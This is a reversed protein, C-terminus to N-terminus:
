RQGTAELPLNFNVTTTQGALVRIRRSVPKTREHWGVITYEGAPVEDIQYAGTSDPRDYFQNRLVMVIASMDSHIHCFVQVIGPKAFTVSKSSGKPYRGLDFTRVSSLSFVNHYIDDRNPFDVRAGRLVALVHPEFREETQAMVGHRLSDLQPTAAAAQVTGDADGGGSDIYLVVNRLEATPDTRTAPPISGPGADAYIRFRPRRTSLATSIEVTGAIRGTAAAPSKLAADERTDPRVLVLAALFATHRLARARM